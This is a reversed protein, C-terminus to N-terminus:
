EQLQPTLTLGFRKAQKQLYKLQRKKLKHYYQLGFSASDKGALHPILFILKYQPM